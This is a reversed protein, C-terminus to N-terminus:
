SNDKEVRGRLFYGAGAAVVAILAGQAQESGVIALYGVVGMSVAVMGLAGLREIEDPKM